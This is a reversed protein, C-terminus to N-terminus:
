RFEMQHLAKHCSIRNIIGIETELPLEGAYNCLMIINRLSYKGGINGRKIRHPTLKGVKDEHRNCGECCFDVFKRLLEKKSESLM